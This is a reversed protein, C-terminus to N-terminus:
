LGAFPLLMAVRSAEGHSNHLGAEFDAKFEEPTCRWYLECLDAVLAYGAALTLEEVM